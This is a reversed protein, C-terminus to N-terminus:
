KCTADDKNINQFNRRGINKGIYKFTHIDGSGDVFYAMDNPVKDTPTVHICSALGWPVFIHHRPDAPKAQKM